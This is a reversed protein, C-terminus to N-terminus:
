SRKDWAGYLTQCGANYHQSATLGGSFSCQKILPEAGVTIHSRVVDIVATEKNKEKSLFSFFFLFKM